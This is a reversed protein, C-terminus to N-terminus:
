RSVTFSYDVEAVDNNLNTPPEAEGWSTNDIVLRYNGTGVWGSATADVTDLDSVGAYYEAREQNQYYSYEEEGFLTVDISPGSRVIIEYEIYTEEDWDFQWQYWEDENM